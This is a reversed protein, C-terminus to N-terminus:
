TIVMILYVEKDGTAILRVDTSVYFTNTGDLDIQALLQLLLFVYAFVDSMHQLRILRELSPCEQVWIYKIM